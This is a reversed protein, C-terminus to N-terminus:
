DNRELLNRLKELFGASMSHEQGDTTDYDTPKGARLLKAVHSILDHDDLSPGTKNRSSKVDELFSDYNHKDPANTSEDCIGLM